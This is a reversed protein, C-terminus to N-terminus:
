KEKVRELYKPSISKLIGVQSLSYLILGCWIFGFSLFHIKTFQEKFVFIGLFLSITPSIYQTFGVTSLPVRRTAKAFWLLPTATVIGSGFLILTTSLPIVGVAGTGNVQKFVIYGLVVPMIIATELTLGIISEIDVLKKMLGYLAFTVALTLAIWPIKGYQLVIIIVGLSALALSIKQWFDLKEKLVIMGLTIVVLPNIYFGMSAEVIHNAKIAWIYVGWNISILIACLSISTLNKSNMIVQKLVNLRGNFTLIGSLFIFSWFIRHALIEGTPIQNLFRWYLPLFGWFTFAAVAYFVGITISNETVDIKKM